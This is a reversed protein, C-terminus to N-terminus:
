NNIFSKVIKQCIVFEKGYWKEYIEIPQVNHDLDLFDDWFLPLNNFRRVIGPFTKGLVIDDFIDKEIKITKIIISSPLNRMLQYLNFIQRRGSAGVYDSFPYSFNSLFKVKNYRFVFSLNPYEEKSLLVYLESPNTDAIYQLLIYPNNEYELESEFPNGHGISLWKNNCGLYESVKEIFAFSPEEEMIYYKKIENYSTLKMEYALKQSDYLETYSNKSINILTFIYDLRKAFETKYPNNKNAFDSFNHDKIIFNLIEEYNSNLSLEDNLKETIEEIENSENLNFFIELSNTINKTGKKIADYLIGSIITSLLFDMTFEEKFLYIIMIYSVEYMYIM